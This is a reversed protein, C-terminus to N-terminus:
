AAKAVVKSQVSGGRDSGLQEAAQFAIGYAIWSVSLGAAFWLGTSLLPWQIAAADLKFLPVAAQIAVFGGVDILVSQPDARRKVGSRSGLNVGRM